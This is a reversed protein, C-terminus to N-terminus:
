EWRFLVVAALSAVAATAGLTVLHVTQPVNGIWSDAIAQVGAGFPLVEGISALWDPLNEAPVVGGGLAMMALFLVMGVATAATTSPALAALLLGISYMAAIVLAVSLVAWGIENPPNITFVVHLTTLAIAIGLLVKFLSVIVQALLMVAPSVPTLSMRRLIGRHRYTAMIIPLTLVGIMCAIMTLAAPIAFVELYSLGGLESRPDHDAGLGVLLMIVVPIAIPVLLISPERVVLRAESVTLNALAKM